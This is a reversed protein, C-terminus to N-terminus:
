SLEGRRATAGVRDAFRMALATITLSPNVGGTTPFISGDCVFLNPVDWSRCNGDVVSTAPDFGMRATGALHNTDDEQRFIETAGVAELSMVMQDLAHQILRKDNEFWAYTIKPIRLGYQDVEDALEVTNRLDPLMEGVMKLGVQHNYRTMEDVLAAGWLEKSGTLVSAWEQPLPGQAMWCYGGAFDKDDCYNWHECITTSPPAKYARVEEEMYGWA